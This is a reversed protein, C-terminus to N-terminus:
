HAFCCKGTCLFVFIYERPEMAKEFEDLRSRFTAM